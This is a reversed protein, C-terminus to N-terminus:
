PSSRHTLLSRVWLPDRRLDLIAVITLRDGHLTYYIGFPFRKALARHFGLEKEHVGGFYLLSEIDAFMSSRFYSGLGISQREYFWFGEALDSEAGSSIELIM